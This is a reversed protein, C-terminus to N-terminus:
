AQHLAHFHAFASNAVYTAEKESLDLLLNTAKLRQRINPSHAAAQFLETHQTVVHANYQLM